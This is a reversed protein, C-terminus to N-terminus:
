YLSSDVWCISGSKLTSININSTDLLLKDYCWKLYKIKDINRYDIEKNLKQMLSEKLFKLVISFDKNSVKLFKGKIYVLGNLIESVINRYIM